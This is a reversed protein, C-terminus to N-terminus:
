AGNLCSWLSMANHTVVAHKVAAHLCPAERKKVASQAAAKLREALSSGQGSPLEEEQMGGHWSVQGAFAAYCRVSFVDAPSHHVATHIRHMVSVALFTPGVPEEEELDISATRDGRITGATAAAGQWVHSILM